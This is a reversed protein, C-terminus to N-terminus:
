VDWPSITGRGAAMALRKLEIDGREVTFGGLDALAAVVEEPRVSGRAGAALGMVIRVQGEPVRGAAAPEPSDEDPVLDIQDILPLIDIAREGHKAQHVRVCAGQRLLREIAEAVVARGGPPAPFTVEWFSVDIAAMLAPGRLPVERAEVVRLGLPLQENLALEFQRPLVPAAFIVDFYEAESTAGLPLASAFAIKPHPNFGESYAVPLGTRRLARELARVLDLHSIFRAEPGKALQARIRVM